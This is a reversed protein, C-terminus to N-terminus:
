LHSETLAQKIKKLAETRHPAFLALTEQTFKGETFDGYEIYGLSSLVCLAALIELNKLEEPSVKERLLFFFVDRVIRFTEDDRDEGHIFRRLLSFVGALTRAKEPGNNPSIRAIEQSDTVRWVEKGRVLDARVYTFDQLSYKLKSKESRVSKAVAQVLGLDETFLFALKDAEGYPTSGIVFGTTQYIHYPM